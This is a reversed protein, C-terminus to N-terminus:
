ISFVNGRWRGDEDGEPKENHPLLVSVPVVKVRTAVAFDTKTHTPQAPIVAPTRKMKCALLLSTVAIPLVLLVALVIFVVSLSGDSGDTIKQLAITGSPESSNLQASFGAMEGQDETGGLPARM